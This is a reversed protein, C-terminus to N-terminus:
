AESIGIFEGQSFTAPRTITGTVSDFTYYDIDGTALEAPDYMGAEYIEVGGVVVRLKRPDKQKLLDNQFVTETDAPIPFPPNAEGVRFKFSVSSAICEKLTSWLVKYWQGQDYLFFVSTPNPCANFYNQLTVLYSTTINIAEAPETSNLLNYYEVSTIQVLQGANIARTIDENLNEYELAGAPKALDNLHFALREDVYDNVSGLKLYIVSM